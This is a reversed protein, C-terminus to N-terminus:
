IITFSNNECKQFRKCQKQQNKASKKVIKPMKNCKKVNNANRQSKKKM